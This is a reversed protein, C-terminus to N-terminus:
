RGMVFREIFLNIIMVSLVSVFRSDFMNLMLLLKRVVGSSM